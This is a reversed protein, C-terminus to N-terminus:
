GTCGEIWIINRFWSLFPVRWGVVKVRECTLGAHIVRHVDGSNYKLYFLTDTNEFTEDAAYELFKCDNAASCVREGNKIFTVNTLTEDNLARFGAIGGSFLVLIGILIAYTKISM